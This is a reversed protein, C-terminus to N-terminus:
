ATRRALWAEYSRHCERIWNLSSFTEAWLERVEEVQKTGAAVAANGEIQIAALVRLHDYESDAQSNDRAASKLSETAGALKQDPHNMMVERARTRLESARALDALCTEVRPREFVPFRPDYRAAKRRELDLMKNVTRVLLYLVSTQILLAILILLYMPSM